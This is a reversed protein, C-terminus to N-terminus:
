KLKWVRGRQGNNSSCSSNLSCSGCTSSCSSQIQTLFGRRELDELMMQIMLPSTDLRVALESPQIIEASRIEHLLKELM